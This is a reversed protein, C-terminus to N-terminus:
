SKNEYMDSENELRVQYATEITERVCDLLVVQHRRELSDWYKALWKRGEWFEMWWPQDAMENKDLKADGDADHEFGPRTFADSYVAERLHDLVHCM